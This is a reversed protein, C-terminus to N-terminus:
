VIYVVSSYLVQDMLTLAANFQVMVRPDSRLSEPFSDKWGQYWSAVQKTLLFGGGLLYTVILVYPLLPLPLITLVHRTTFVILDQTKGVSVRGPSSNIPEILLKLTRM